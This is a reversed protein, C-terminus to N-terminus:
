SKTYYTKRRIITEDSSLVYAGAVKEYWGENVPVRADDDDLVVATYTVGTSGTTSLELAIASFPRVLAGSCRTEILYKQQNYDIDFDDFMNVAGGKDAGINYDRLNVIIGMLDGGYVGKMGEMVPVTIIERVRLTNALKSVSEYLLHGIGDEILLMDSLLDETTFLVPDGSGKYDKRAKIAARIFAKAVEDSTANAAVTVLKKITYLDDDNYIPRINQENVKDDSAASRGDSVLAARAIEEDLMMRMERKLWAIVDFDTIDNVDDRDMKQKKYITTATTSRKLLGFVEETKRNGKIYGKARADEITIDAFMSKVRSFPTHSVGSMFKSVWGMDRQIFSPPVNMNRAEPFLFDVQEIGHALVSDKMSGYRKADNIIATMESHTLVNENEQDAVQGEFANHKMSDNGGETENKNNQDLADAILAYMVAQQTENMSDIVDGVTMDDKHIIEKSEETDPDNPTDAHALTEEQSAESETATSEESHQIEDNVIIDLTGGQELKWQDDTFRIFGSQGSEEDHALVTDIYAGPNAGALVLSVEKIAGHIVSPGNQRLQNAYISLSKIDGSDVCKKAAIGGETDNFKGFVRVGEPNNKLLGHGLVATPDDHNHNWVIPVIVGDCDKFADRRIIRGDACPLDNRTAWGSFDYEM